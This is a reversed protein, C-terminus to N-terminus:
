GTLTILIVAKGARVEGRRRFESRYACEISGALLLQAAAQSLRRPVEGSVGRTHGEGYNQLRIVGRHRFANQDDFIIGVGSARM